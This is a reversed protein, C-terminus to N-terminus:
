EFAQISFPKVNSGKVKGEAQLVSTANALAGEHFLAYDAFVNTPHGTSCAYVSWVMATEYKFISEAEITNWYGSFSGNGTPYEVPGLLEYKQIFSGSPPCDSTLAMVDTAAAGIVAFTVSEEYSTGSPCSCPTISTSSCAPLSAALAAPALLALKVLPASLKM